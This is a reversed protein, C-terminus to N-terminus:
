VASKVREVNPTVTCKDEDKRSVGVKLLDTDPLGALKEKDPSEEVKLYAHLGLTKLAAVTSKNNHVHISKVVRFAISGFNLERHRIKIFEEKREEAFGKVSKELTEYELKLVQARGTFEERIKNLAITLRGELREQEVQIEAMRRLSGDVELWDKYTKIPAKKRAM